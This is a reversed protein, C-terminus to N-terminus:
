LELGLKILADVQEQSDVVMRWTGTDVSFFTVEYKDSIRVSQAKALDQQKYVIEVTNWRMRRWQEDIKEVTPPQVTPTAYTQQRAVVSLVLTIAVMASVTVALRM